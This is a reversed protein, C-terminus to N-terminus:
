AWWESDTLATILLGPIAFGLIDDGVPEVEPVARPEVRVSEAVQDDVVIGTIIL